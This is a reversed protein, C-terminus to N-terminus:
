EKTGLKASISACAAAVAAKVGSVKVGAAALKTALESTTEDTGFLLENAAVDGASVRRLLAEASLSKGGDSTDFCYLLRPAPDETIRLVIAEPAFDFLFRGHNGAVVDHQM